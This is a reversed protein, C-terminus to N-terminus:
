KWRQEAYCKVFGHFKKKNTVQMIDMYRSLLSKKEEASLPLEPHNLGALDKALNRLKYPRNRRISDIDIFGKVEDDKVFVHSLHADGLWFGLKHLKTMKEIVKMCVPTHPTNGEKVLHDYLSKGEIRRMIFFPRHLSRFTGFAEIRPVSIGRYILFESLNYIQKARNFFAFSIRSKFNVPQLIKFFCDAEENYFLTTRKVTSYLIYGASGFIRDTDESKGRIAELILPNRRVLDIFKEVYGTLNENSHFSAMENIYYKM